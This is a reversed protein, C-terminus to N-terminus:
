SLFAPPGRAPPSVLAAASGVLPRYLEHAKEAACGGGLEAHSSLAASGGQHYLLCEEVVGHDGLHIHEAQLWASWSLCLVFLALLSRYRLQPLIKM